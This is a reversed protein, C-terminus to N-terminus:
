KDSPNKKGGLLMQQMKEIRNLRTQEQKATLIWLVYEKKHTYALKEFIDIATTTLAASLEPPLTVTRKEPNIFEAFQNAKIAANNTDSPKVLEVPRFRLATWTDDVAASQVPRWGIEDMVGWHRTMQLDTPLTNKKPYMVWFITDPKLFPKLAKLSIKLAESNQVFLQIGNLGATDVANITVDEPVDLVAAYNAPPNILAWRTGPKMQLRQSLKSM